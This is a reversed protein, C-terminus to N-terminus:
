ALLKKIPRYSQRHLDCVGYEQLRDQHLRTGYGKHRDFAYRGYKQHYQLMLQDRYVKALISAAAICWIKNDGQIINEQPAAATELKVADILLYDPQAKLNMIALQMAMKTASLIGIEDISVNDVVGLGYDYDVTIQQYLSQRQNPSLLKSDKVAINRDVKAKFCVCAAVVPGAWAGRGAEDIGVVARYGQDVLKLEYSQDLDPM